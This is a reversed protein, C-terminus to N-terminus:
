PRLIKALMMGVYAYPFSLYDVYVSGQLLMDMHQPIHEIYAIVYTPAWYITNRL